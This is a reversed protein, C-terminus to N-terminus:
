NQVVNIMGKLQSPCSCVIPPLDLGGNKAKCRKLRSITLLIGARVGFLRFSIEAYRSCSPELACRDGIKKPRVRRYLRCLAAFWDGVKSLKPPPLTDVAMDWALPIGLRRAVRPRLDDPVEIDSISTFANMMNEIEQLAIIQILLRITEAVPLLIADNETAM